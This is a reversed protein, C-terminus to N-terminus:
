LEVEDARVAPQRYQDRLRALTRAHEVADASATADAVLVVRLDHAYADAATQFICSETSVGALVLETVGKARLLAALGTRHFASDRTKAVVQDPAALGTLREAGTSGELVMGQDDDRMNLAWTSRDRAHVTQVEIVLVGARRARDVLANVRTVLEDRRSALADDAFYDNQLDVLVLARESHAVDRRHGPM